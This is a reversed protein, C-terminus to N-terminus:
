IQIGFHIGAVHWTQLGVTNFKNHTVFLGPLLQTLLKHIHLNIAPIPTLTDQKM